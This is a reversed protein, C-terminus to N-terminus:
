GRSKKMKAMQDWAIRQLEAQIASEEPDDFENGQKVRIPNKMFNEGRNQAPRTGSTATARSNRFHHSYSPFPQKTTHGTARRSLHSHAPTQKDGAAGGSGKSKLMTLLMGRSKTTDNMMFIGRSSHVNNVANTGPSSTTTEPASSARGIYEQSLQTQEMASLLSLASSRRRHHLNNSSPTIPMSSTRQLAPPHHHHYRISSNIGGSSSHSQPHINNHSTTNEPLSQSRCHQIHTPSSGNGNGGIASAAVEPAPSKQQVQFPLVSINRLMSVPILSSSYSASSSSVVADTSPTICNGCGQLQQHPVFPPYFNDGNPQQQLLPQLQPQQIQKMQSLVSDRNVSDRSQISCDPSSLPAADGVLNAGRSDTNTKNSDDTTTTMLMTFEDIGFCVKADEDDLSSRRRHGGRQQQHQRSRSECSPDNQSSNWPLLSSSESSLLSSQPPTPSHTPTSSYTIPTPVLFSSSSSESTTEEEVERQDNVNTFSLWDSLEQPSVATLDMM